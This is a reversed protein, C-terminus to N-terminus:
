ARSQELDPIQPGPDPTKDGAVGFRLRHAREMWTTEFLTMRAPVHKLMASEPGRVGSEAGTAILSM